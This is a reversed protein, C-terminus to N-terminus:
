GHSLSQTTASRSNVRSCAPRRKAPPMPDNGGPHLPTCKLLRKVALWTGYAAGHVRLADAAYHSCTPSFRCGCAPGFIAPLVPSIVRQYLRVLGLLVLVPLGTLWAFAHPTTEPM